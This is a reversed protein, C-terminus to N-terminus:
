SLITKLTEFELGSNWVYRINRCDCWKKYRGGVGNWGCSKGWGCLHVWKVIYGLYGVVSTFLFPREVLCSLNAYFVNVPYLWKICQIMPSGIETWVDKVTHRTIKNKRRQALNARTACTLVSYYFVTLLRLHYPVHSTMKSTDFGTAKRLIWVEDEFNLTWVEDEINVGRGPPHHDDSAERALQLNKSVHDIFVFLYLSILSIWWNLLVHDVDQTLQSM